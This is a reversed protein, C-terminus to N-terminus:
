QIIYSTSTPVRLDYEVVLILVTLILVQPDPLCPSLSKLEPDFQVKSLSQVLLLM